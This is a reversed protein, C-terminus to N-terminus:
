GQQTVHGERDEVFVESVSRAAGPDASYSRDFTAPVAQGVVAQPVAPVCGAGAAAVAAPHAGPADAVVRRLLECAVASVGEGRAGLDDRCASRVPYQDFAGRL